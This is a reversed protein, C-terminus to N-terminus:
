KGCASAAAPMLLFVSHEPNQPSLRVFASLEVGPVLAVSDDNDPMAFKVNKGAQELWFQGLFFGDMFCHLRDDAAGDTACRAGQLTTYTDTKSRFNAALRASYTGPDKDGAPTRADIAVTMATVLQGPHKALHAADYARAWCGLWPDKAEEAAVAIAPLGGLLMMLLAVFGLRMM